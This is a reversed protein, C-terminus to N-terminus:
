KTQDPIRDGIEDFIAETYTYEDGIVRWAEESSIPYLRAIDWDGKLKVWYYGPERKESM